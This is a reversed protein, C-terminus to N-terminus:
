LLQQSPLSHDQYYNELMETLTEEDLGSVDASYPLYYKVTDADLEQRRFFEDGDENTSFEVRLVNNYTDFYFELITQIM